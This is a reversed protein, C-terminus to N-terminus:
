FRRGRRKLLGMGSVAGLVGIMGGSANKLNQEARKQMGLSETFRDLGESAIAEGLFVTGLIGGIKGKTGFRSMFKGVKQSAGISLGAGAALLGAGMYDVKQRDQKKEKIPVVRGNIRRFIM